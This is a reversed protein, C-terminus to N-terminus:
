IHMTMSVKYAILFISKKYKMFIRKEEIKFINFRYYVWTMEDFM